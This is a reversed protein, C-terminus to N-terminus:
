LRVCCETNPQRRWLGTLRRPEVPTSGGVEPAVMYYVLVLGACAYVRCSITHMVLMDPTTLKFTLLLPPQDWQAEKRQPKQRDATTPQLNTKAGQLSGRDTLLLPHLSHKQAQQM